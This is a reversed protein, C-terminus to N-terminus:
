ASTQDNPMMKKFRKYWREGHVSGLSVSHLDKCFKLKIFDGEQPLPKRSQGIKLLDRKQYSHSDRGSVTTTRH